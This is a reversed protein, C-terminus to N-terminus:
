DYKLSGLTDRNEYEEQTKYSFFFDSFEEQLLVQWCFFDNPCLNKNRQYQMKKLYGYM